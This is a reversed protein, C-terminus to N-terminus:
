YKESNVYDTLHRLEDVQWRVRNVDQKLAEVAIVKAPDTCAARVAFIFRCLVWAGDLAMDLLNADVHADHTKRKRTEGHWLPNRIFTPMTPSPLVSGHMVAHRYEMLDFATAAGAAIVEQALPTFRPSPRSLEDIWDAVSTKDTSPRMGKVQEGKLAWVTTELNAEFIGWVVALAGLRQQVEPPFGWGSVRKLINETNQTHSPPKMRWSRADSIQM